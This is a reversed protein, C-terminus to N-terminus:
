EVRRLHEHVVGQGLEGEATVEGEELGSAREGGAREQSRREALAAVLLRSSGARARGAARKSAQGTGSAYSWPGGGGSGSELGARWVQGGACARKNPASRLM